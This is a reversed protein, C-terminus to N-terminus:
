VTPPARSSFPQFRFALIPEWVAEIVQVPVLPIEIRVMPEPAVYAQASMQCLQCEPHSRVNEHKHSSGLYGLLGFLYLLFAGLLLRRTKINLHRFGRM